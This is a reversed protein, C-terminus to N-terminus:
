DHSGLERELETDRYMALRSIHFPDAFPLRNKSPGGGCLFAARYGAQFLKVEAQQQASGADSYPFALLDVPKGLGDELAYKSQRIERALEENTLLSFWYHSVGHSQISVGSEDLERLEDWTCVPELPEVEADFETMGGISDTPVFLMAPVRFQRLVPLVTEYMCRCGDDFTLLASRQPLAAPVELGRLFCDHDIFAWNSDLLWGLQKVFTQESIYHWTDWGDAPPAGIRHYALVALERTTRGSNM